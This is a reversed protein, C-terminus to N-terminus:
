SRSYCFGRIQDLFLDLNPGARHYVGHHCPWVSGADSAVSLLPYGGSRKNHPGDRPLKSLYISVCPLASPMGAHFTFEHSGDGLESGFFTHRTLHHHFGDLLGEDRSVLLVLFIAAEDGGFDVVVRPLRVDIVPQGNDLVDRVVDLVVRVQDDELLSALQLAWIPLGQKGVGLRAVLDVFVDRRRLETADCRLRGLLDDHLLQAIGFAPKDE